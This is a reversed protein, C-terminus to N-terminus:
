LLDGGQSFARSPYRYYLDCRLNFVARHSVKDAYLHRVYVWPAYIFIFIAILGGAYFFLEHYKQQVTLKESLFVDDLLHRTVQPVLLPVTFKVVGGIVALALYRSYPRVYGLFRIFNHPKKAM